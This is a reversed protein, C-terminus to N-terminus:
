QAMRGIGVATIRQRSQTAFELQWAGGAANRSMVM